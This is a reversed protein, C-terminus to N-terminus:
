VHADQHNSERHIYREGLTNIGIVAYQAIIKGNSISVSADSYWRVPLKRNKLHQLTVRSKLFYKQHFDKKLAKIVEHPVHTKNQVILINYIKQLLKKYGSSTVSELSMGASKWIEWATRKILRRKKTSMTPWM